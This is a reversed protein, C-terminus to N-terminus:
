NKLVSGAKPLTFHFSSGRGVESEVGIQGGHLEIIKRSIALGLGETGAAAGQAGGTKFYREFIRPLDEPTIGPGTDSVRVEVFDERPVLAVIVRDGTSSCRLANQILNELVRTVLGLDASVFSM